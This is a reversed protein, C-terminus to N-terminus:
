IHIMKVQTDDMVCHSQKFWVVVERVSALATNLKKMYM